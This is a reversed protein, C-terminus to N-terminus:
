KNNIICPNGQQADSLVIIMDVFIYYNVFVYMGGAASYGDMDRQPSFFGDAHPVHPESQRGDGDPTGGRLNNKKELSHVMLNIGKRFSVWDYVKLVNYHAKILEEAIEKAKIRGNIGFLSSRPMKLIHNSLKIYLSSGVFAKFVKSGSLPKGAKM